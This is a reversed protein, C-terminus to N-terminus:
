HSRLVRGGPGGRCADGQAHWRVITGSRNAIFTFECTNRYAQPPYYTGPYITTTRSRVGDERSRMTEVTTPTEYGPIVGTEVRTWTYAREGEELERAVYNYGFTDQARGIPQGLFADMHTRFQGVTACGALAAALLWAMPKVPIGM